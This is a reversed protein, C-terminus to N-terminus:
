FFIKLINLAVTSVIVKWTVKLSHIFVNKVAVLKHEEKITLALCNTTNSDEFNIKEPTANNITKINNDTDTDIDIQDNNQISIDSNIDESFNDYINNLDDNEINEDNSTKLIQNTSIQKLEYNKTFEDM